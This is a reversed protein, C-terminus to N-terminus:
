FCAPAATPGGAARTFRAPFHDRVVTSALRHGNYAPSIPPTLPFGLFNRWEANHFKKPPHDAA